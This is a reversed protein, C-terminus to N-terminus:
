ILNCIFIVAKSFLVLYFRCVGENVKDFYTLEETTLTMKMNSTCKYGNSIKAQNVVFGNCLAALVAFVASLRSLNLM